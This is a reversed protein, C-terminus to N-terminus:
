QEAFYYWGITTIKGTNDIEFKIKAFDDDYTARDGKYTGDFYVLEVFYSEATELNSYGNYNVLGYSIADKINLKEIEAETFNGYLFKGYTLTNDESMYPHNQYDADRYYAEIIDEFSDGVKLGRSFKHHDSVSVITTVKYTGDSSIANKDNLKEFLVTLENYTYVRGDSTDRVENPKGLIGIVQNETMFAVVNGMLLDKYTFKTASSQKLTPYEVSADTIDDGDGIVAETKRCSCLSVFLVCILLIAAFRNIKSM